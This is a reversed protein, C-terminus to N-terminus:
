GKRKDSPTVRSANVMPYEGTWDVNLALWAPVFEWDFPDGYSEGGGISQWDQEIMPAVYCAFSRIESTGLREFAQGIIETGKADLLAEWACCATEAIDRESLGLEALEPGTLSRNEREALARRIVDIDGGPGDLGEQLEDGEFGEIFSLARMLADTILDPHPECAPTSGNMPEIERTLGVAARAKDAYDTAVYVGAPQGFNAAIISQLAGLMTPAAANLRKRQDAKAQRADALDYARTLRRTATALGPTAPFGTDSVTM